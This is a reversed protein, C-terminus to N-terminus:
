FRNDVWRRQDRPFFRDQNDLQISRPNYAPKPGIGLGRNEFTDVGGRPAQWPRHPAQLDEVSPQTGNFRPRHIGQIFPTKDTPRNNGLVQRDWVNRWGPPIQEDQPFRPERGRENNILGEVLGPKNSYRPAEQKIPPTPRNGSVALNGSLSPPEGGQKIDEPVDNIDWVRPNAVKNLSSAYKSLIARVKLNM